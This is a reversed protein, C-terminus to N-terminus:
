PYLLQKDWSAATKTFLQRKHLRFKGKSWFEISSPVLRFGSWHEPRPPHHTFKMSYSAISKIFAANNALPQSQKSAWAGIKSKLDRSDFYENAQGNSVQEIAGEIRVQKDLLDWFFCLAAVPNEILEKGKRSTNHTYFVFGQEDVTKVLVMRNSPIGNKTATALNAAYHEIIQTHELAQQQWDAFLKLPDNM